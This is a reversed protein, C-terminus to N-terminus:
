RGWKIAQFKDPIRISTPGPVDFKLSKLTANIELVHDLDKFIMQTFFSRTSDVATFNHYEFALKQRKPLKDTNGNFAAQLMDFSVPVGMLLRLPEYTGRYYNYGLKNVYIVSDPTFVMRMIEVGYAHVNLYLISDIRNVMFYNCTRTGGTDTIDAKGRYSIWQYGSAVPPLTDIRAAAMVASSSDTQATMPGAALLLVFLALVTKLLIRNM